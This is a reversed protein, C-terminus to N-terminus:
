EEKKIRKLGKKLLFKILDYTELVEIEEHSLVKWAVKTIDEVVQPHFSGSYNSKMLFWDTKKLIPKENMVYEHYTTALKEIISVEKIGTEECVERIACDQTPEYEEVKGKPLDWKNKRYILLIQKSDNYVLGGAAHVLVFQSRFFSRLNDRQIKDTFLIKLKYLVGNFYDASINKALFRSFDITFDIEPEVDWLLVCESHLTKVNNKIGDFINAIQSVYNRESSKKYFHSIYLFNEPKIEAFSKVRNIVIMLGKQFIRM